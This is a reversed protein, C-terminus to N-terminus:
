KKIFKLLEFNQGKTLKLFYLGKPFSSINLRQPLQTKQSTLMLVGQINFISVDASKEKGSILLYDKAPNPFIKYQSSKYAEPISLPASNGIYDTKLLFPYYTSSQYIDGYILYGGDTTAIIYYPSIYDYLSTLTYETTWLLNGQRYAELYMPINNPMHNYELVILDDGDKTFNFPSRGYPKDPLNFSNITDGNSSHTTLAYNNGTSTLSILNDDDVYSFPKSVDPDLFTNQINGSVDIRFITSGYYEPGYTLSYYNDTVVVIEGNPMELISNITFGSGDGLHFDQILPESTWIIELTESNVKVLTHHNSAIWNDFLYNGDALISVKRPHPIGPLPALSTHNWENDFLFISDHVTFLKKGNTGSATSGEHPYGIRVTKMWLTDGLNDFKIIFLHWDSYKYFTGTAVYGGDEEFVNFPWTNVEDTELFDITKFFVNQTIGTLSFVIILMTIFVRKQM